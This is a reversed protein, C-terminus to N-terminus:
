LMSICLFFVVVAFFLVLFIAFLITLVKKRFNKTDIEVLMQELMDDLDKKTGDFEFEEAKVLTGSDTRGIGRYISFYIELEDYCRPCKIVHRIFQEKKIDDLNNDLFDQVELEYERCKM